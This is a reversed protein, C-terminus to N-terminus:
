SYNGLFYLWNQYLNRGGKTDATPILPVLEDFVCQGVISELTVIKNAYQVILHSFDIMLQAYQEVDHINNSQSVKEWVRPKHLNKFRKAAWLAIKPDKVTIGIIDHKREIHYALDHSSISNYRDKIELLYQDKQEINEFQYPKKLKIRDHVHVVTSNKFTAGTSDILASVLDGCSGGMYCVINM